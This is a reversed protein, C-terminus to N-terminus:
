HTFVFVKHVAKQFVMLLVFGLFLLVPGRLFVRTFVFRDTAEPNLGLTFLFVYRLIALVMFAASGYILLLM